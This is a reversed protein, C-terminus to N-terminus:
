NRRARTTLFASTRSITVNKGFIVDSLIEWRDGNIDYQTAIDTSATSGGYIRINGDIPVTAGFRHVLPPPTLSTWSRARTDYALCLKSEGGVLYIRDKYSAGTSGHARKAAGPPSPGRTWTDKVTDYVHMYFGSDPNVVSENVTSIVYARIGNKVVIPFNGPALPMPNASGWENKDVDFAPVTDEGRRGGFIYM